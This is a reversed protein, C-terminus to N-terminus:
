RHHLGREGGFIEVAANFWLRTDPIGATSITALADDIVRGGEKLDVKVSGSAEAIKGLWDSLYMPAQASGQSPAEIPEHSVRLSGRPDARVDCEIWRVRSGLFSEIDTETNARHWVLEAAGLEAPWSDAIDATRSV